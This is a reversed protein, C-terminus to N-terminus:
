SGVQAHQCNVAIMRSKSDGLVNIHVTEIVISLDLCHKTTTTTITGALTDSFLERHTLMDVLMRKQFCLGM